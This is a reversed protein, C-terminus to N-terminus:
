GLQRNPPMGRIQLCRNEMEEISLTGYLDMTTTISEHRLYNKIFEATLGMDKLHRAQSHRLLHPNIKRISEGFKTKITKPNPHALKCIKATNNFIQNIRSVELPHKDAFIYGEKKKIFQIFYGLDKIYNPYLKGVPIPSIKNGKGVVIIRGNFFDIDEVKLKAVEFRRLAPFYCSSIILKDRLNKTANILQEVEELKLTYQSDKYQSKM